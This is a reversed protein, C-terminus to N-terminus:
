LSQSNLKIRKAFVCVLVHVYLVDVFEVSIKFRNEVLTTLYLIWDSLVLFGGQKQPFTGKLGLKDHSDGM